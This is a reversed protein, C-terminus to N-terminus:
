AEEARYAAYLEPNQELAKAIAQQKSLSPDAARVIAAANEIAAEASALGPPPSGPPSSTELKALRADRGAASRAYLEPAQELVRAIAQAHQLPQASKRVLESARAEIERDAQKGREIAMEDVRNAQRRAHRVAREYLGPNEDLAKAIAQQHSLEPDRRQLQKALTELDQEARADNARQEGALQQEWAELREGTKAFQARLERGSRAISELITEGANPDADRPPSTGIFTRLGALAQELSSRQQVLPPIFRAPTM